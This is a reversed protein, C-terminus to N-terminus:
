RGFSLPCVIRVAFAVCDCFPLFNVAGTATAPVGIRLNLRVYENSRPTTLQRRCDLEAFKTNIAKEEFRVPQNNRTGNGHQLYGSLLQASYRLYRAPSKMKVPWKVAFQSSFDKLDRLM